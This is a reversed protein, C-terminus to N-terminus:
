APATDAGRQGNDDAHGGNGDSKDNSSADGDSTGTDTGSLADTLVDALPEGSQGDARLIATRTPFPIVIGAQEFDALITRNIQDHLREAQWYETTAAHYQVLLQLDYNGFNQLVVHVESDAAIRGPGEGIARKVISIAREIGDPPTDYAIGLHFRRRISPRRSVNEVADDLMKTNPITILHGSLTRFRTTRFGIGEVTGWQGEYVITDGPSVSRDAFLAFSAALNDVLGRLLFWLVVGAVGLSALIGTLSAGIVFRTVVLVLVAIAIVRLIRLIVQQGNRGLETGSIRTALSALWGSAPESLNWVAWFATGALVTGLMGRVWVDVATPKWLAEYGIFAGLAAACLLMPLRVASVSRHLGRHSSHDIRQAIGALLANLLSALVLGGITWGLVKLWDSPENRTLLVYRTMAQVYSGQEDFQERRPPSPYGRSRAHVIDAFQGLQDQRVEPLAETVEALTLVGDGHLEDLRAALATEYREQSESVVPGIDFGEAAVEEGRTVLAQAFSARAARAVEDREVLVGAGPDSGGGLMGLGQATAAPPCLSAVLLLTAVTHRVLPFARM